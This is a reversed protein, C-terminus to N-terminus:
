RLDKLKKQVQAKREQERRSQGAVKVAKEYAALAATKEGLAMHIDGLHDYIETHQGEDKDKVAELLHQKAEKYQKQKYLVWGLSDLYAANDHDDGPKLDKVKKRLKRDEALAKRVLKEAEALNMDHDAWIYGLDNNFTPNDPRKALLAKLQDAAKDIDNLEVYVGSLIYQCTDIRADKEKATLSKDARIQTMVDQYVKAAEANQGAQGLVEAKLELNRWDGPQAKVLNNALKLAEGTKGQRALIPIRLRNVLVKLRNLYDANDADELEVVEQAVKLSDDYKKAAYLVEILSIYGEAMRDISRLQKGKAAVIRYFVEAAELDNLQDASKALIFAANYNFPQPKQDRALATAAKLLRKTAARDRVLTVVEAAM